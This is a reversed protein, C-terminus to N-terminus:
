KITDSKRILELVFMMQTDKHELYDDFSRPVNYDPIIGRNYVQNTKEPVDQELNVLSFFTALGSKPLIYGWPTHGNHGYYGGMAEEGITVTNPNGAVMAAFLSGASAVRPSILLYINGTFANKAPSRVRHDESTEDEYFRGEKEVPFEERLMRNYKGVGLPRLFAPTKSYAYRLYPVKRFSVWAQRNEQFNRDTLYSYTVLDNPDTGGGNYRVDVILNKIERQKVSAFVSDLFHVYRKHSASHKGGMSFSNVTLLATISDIVTFSYMEDEEWDKYNAEDDPFSYRKKVNKYYDRYGASKLTRYQETASGHPIFCVTFAPELGYHLRYYRSFNYQIGITKGTTNVGDTTYYKGLDAIIDGFPRGNVSVLEAGLPIEAGEMNLVWKGAVPKVPYPFYGSTEAAMSKRYKEPLSTDNHLSGEFDTLKVIINYFDRYSASREVQAEAWTYISDTEKETRYKYLGSNAKLRINKFIELDKRMKVRPFSDDISQAYGSFSYVLWLLFFLYHLQVTKM